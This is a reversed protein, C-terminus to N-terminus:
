ELVSRGDWFTMSEGNDLLARVEDINKTMQQNSQCKLVHSTISKYTTKPCRIGDKNSKTTTTAVTVNTSDDNNENKQKKSVRRLANDLM